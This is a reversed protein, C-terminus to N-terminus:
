LNGISPGLMLITIMMQSIYKKTDRNHHKHNHGDKNNFFTIDLRVHDDLSGHYWPVMMIMIIMIIKIIM